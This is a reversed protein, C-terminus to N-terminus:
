HLHEDAAPAGVPEANLAEVARRLVAPPWAPPDAGTWRARLYGQRDILYEVHPAAGFLDYTAVVDRAGETVVPFLIPPDAGLARIARPDADRPVAVIEVGLGALAAYDRALEALRPRSGPLSYVVLLVIRRGRYDHLAGAPMP